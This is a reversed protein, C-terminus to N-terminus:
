RDARFRVTFVFTSEIVHGDVSLVRYRVSYAGPRLTLLGVSLRKSDDPGVLVDQRDVRRGDADWVSLSSYAAELRENFWLDVRLPAEVVSRAAPASKVLAAHGWAAAPSLLAVFLWLGGVSVISGPWGRL